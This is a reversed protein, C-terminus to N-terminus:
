YDSSDLQHWVWDQAAPIQLREVVDGIFANVLLQKAKDKSLGRCQLYFLADNDIQGTTSGHSCKVDDAYIELEPKSNMSGRESMVVNANQQYANTQQADQRVFVKGNFVGKGQDYIVGKYLEHSECNPKLHDIISHNDVLEKGDPMYAGNLHCISNEAQLRVHPDNRTWAGSITLTNQTFVADRRQYVEESSYHYSDDLGTQFKDLTFQANDGVKVETIVNSHIPGHLHVFSHAMHGKSGQEAIIINRTFVATQPQTYVHVVHIPKDMQVGKDLKLFVGGSAYATNLAVMIENKHDAQKAYVAEFDSKSSRLAEGMSLLSLGDPLESDEIMVEGDIVWVKHADFQAIDLEEPSVMKGQEAAHWQGKLVKNLPTYKWAETKRTPIALRGLAGLAEDTAADVIDAGRHEKGEFAAFAQLATAAEALTM